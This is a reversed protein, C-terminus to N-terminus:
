ITLLDEEEYPGASLVARLLAEIGPTNQRRDGARRDVEVDLSTGVRRPGRRRDFAPTSDSDQM